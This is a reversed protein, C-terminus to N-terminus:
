AGQTNISGTAIGGDPESALSARTAAGALLFRSSENFDRRAGSRGAAPGAPARHIPRDCRPESGRELNRQRPNSRRQRVGERHRHDPIGERRVRWGSPRLALLPVFLLPNRHSCRQDCDHQHGHKTAGPDPLGFRARAHHDAVMCAQRAGIRRAREIQVHSKSSIPMNSGAAFAIRPVAGEKADHSEFPRRACRRVAM